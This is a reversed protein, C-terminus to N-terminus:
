SRIPLNIWFTGLREARRMLALCRRLAKRRAGNGAFLPQLKRLAAMRERSSKAIDFEALAAAVQTQWPLREVEKLRYCRMGIRGQPTRIDQDLSTSVIPPRAAVGIALAVRMDFM